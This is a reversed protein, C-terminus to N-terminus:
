AHLASWREILAQQLTRARQTWERAGAPRAGDTTGLRARRDVDASFIAFAVERGGRSRAYGGLGSAFNLTGTKARVRVPHNAIERGQRDRMPHARLLDPLVGERGAAHLFGAMARASVRSEVNLGSHDVFRMGGAGYRSAIWDAMRAGSQGLTAVQADDRRSAALGAAEATINTSFLLMERMMEPLTSSRHEALVTGGAAPAWLPASQPPPLTCGRAALLARLVDGAYLSPRRVPLWHSGTGGLAPRAVTWHEREATASHAYIPAARSVAEIGIVSVRPVERDSRADMSLSLGGSGNRWGFHVRNFNLNLGSLAPNYGAAVPQDAAIAPIAPLAADDVLFRGDVRRLGLDVLRQALVALEATQLVPDGGGQLVLDGRLVGGEIRGGRALARTAFRHELGLAFLAYLATPAKAVSAPPLGIDAAHEEVVAGTEMDIAMCGTRGGLRAAEVLSELAPLTPGRRKALTAAPGLPPRAPPRPAREPALAAAPGALGLALGGALGALLRRRDLGRRSASTLANLDGSM